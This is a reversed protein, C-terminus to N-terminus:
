WRTVLIRKGDAFWRPESFARGDVASLAKVPRKPLPYFHRDPVDQPDRKLEDLRRRAAATDEVEPTTKWVVVKSPRERDRLAVAVFRGDPSVAPDGTEWALRQILDGQVLGARELDAKAAMADRVLEATHRGYLLAPSDGYVGRFAADFTRVKR